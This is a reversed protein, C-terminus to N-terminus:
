FIGLFKKRKKDVVKQLQQLHVDHNNVANNLREIEQELTETRETLDSTDPIDANVKAAVADALAQITAGSLEIVTTEPVDSPEPVAPAEVAEVPTVPAKDDKDGGSFAGFVSGIINIVILVVLLAVAGAVIKQKKELTNFDDVNVKGDNNRDLLEQARDMLEDLQESM